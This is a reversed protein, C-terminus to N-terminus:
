NPAFRETLDRVAGRAGDRAFVARQRQAGGGSEVMRRATAFQDSSGLREAVPELADLLAHLRPVLPGTAGHTYAAERDEALTLTGPVAINLHRAGCHQRAQCRDALLTALAHVVAVVAAAEEVSAQTDPVRVELTGHIPHPRLEWWWRHDPAAAAYSEWTLAPPMGQRPLLECIEPRKSALGTDRGEFIPGNAALAAL